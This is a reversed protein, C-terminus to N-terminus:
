WWLHSVGFLSPLGRSNHVGILGVQSARTRSTGVGSVVSCTDNISRGAGALITTAQKTRSSEFRMGQHASAAGAATSTSRVTGSCELPRVLKPIGPLTGAEGLREKVLSRIQLLLGVM